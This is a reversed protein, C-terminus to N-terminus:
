QTHSVARLAICLSIHDGNYLCFFQTLGQCVLLEALSLCVSLPLTPIQGWAKRSLGVSERRYVNDRLRATTPSPPKGCVDKTYRASTELSLTRFPEFNQPCLTIESAVPGQRGPITVAPPLLISSERRSRQLFPSTMNANRMQLSGIMLFLSPQINVCHRLLIVGKFFDM